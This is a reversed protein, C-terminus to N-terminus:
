VHSINPNVHANAGAQLEPMNFSAYAGAQTTVQTDAQEGAQTEAQPAAAQTKKQTVPM